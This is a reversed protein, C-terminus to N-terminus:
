VAFLLALFTMVLGFMGWTIYVLAEYRRDLSKPRRRPFPDRLTLGADSWVQSLAYGTGASAALGSLMFFRTLAIDPQFSALAVAIASLTIGVRLLDHASGPNPEGEAM